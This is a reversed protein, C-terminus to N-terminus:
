LRQSSRSVYYTGTTTLFNGHHFSPMSSLRQLFPKMSKMGKSCTDPVKTANIPAATQAYIESIRQSDGQAANLIWSMTGKRAQKERRTKNQYGKIQKSGSEHDPTDSPAKLFFSAM